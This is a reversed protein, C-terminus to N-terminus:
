PIVVLVSKVPTRVKTAFDVVACVMVIVVLAEVDLVKMTGAFESVRETGRVRREEAVLVKAMVLAVRVGVVRVTVAGEGVKKGEVEKERIPVDSKTAHVVPRQAGTPELIPLMDGVPEAEMEIGRVGAGEDEVVVTVFNKDTYKILLSIAIAVLKPEPVLVLFKVIASLPPVGTLISVGNLPCLESNYEAM